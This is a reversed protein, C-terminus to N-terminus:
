NKFWMMDKM